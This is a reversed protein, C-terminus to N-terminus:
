CHLDAEFVIAVKQGLGADVQRDLCNWSENLTGDEFWRYFPAKESQVGAHVADELRRVLAGFAGLLRRLRCGSPWWPTASLAGPWTPPASYNKAAPVNAHSETQSM